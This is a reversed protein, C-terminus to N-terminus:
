SGQESLKQMAFLKAYFGEVAILEDHTGQEVIRGEELVIIATCSRVTSVRHAIILSTKGKIEKNLSSLIDRETAADM